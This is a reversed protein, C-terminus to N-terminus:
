LVLPTWELVILGTVWFLFFFLWIRDYVSFRWQAIGPFRGTFGRVRMSRSVRISREHARVFLMGLLYAYTKYTHMSTKPRFARLRAARYLRKFEQDMVFLYRHTLMLLLILKNPVRFFSLAQAFFSVPITAVLATFMLFITLGKLTIVLCIHIGERAFGVGSVHFIAEGPYTPPLIIWILLFFGFVSVFRKATHAASIRSVLILLVSAGFAWALAITNEMFSTTFSLVVAAGLRVRPDMRHVPSKGEAFPIDM